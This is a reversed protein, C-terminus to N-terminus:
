TVKRRKSREDAEKWRRVREVGRQRSEDWREPKLQQQYTDSAVVSTCVFATLATLGGLVNGM